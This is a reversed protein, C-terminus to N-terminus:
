SKIYPQYKSAYVGEKKKEKLSHYQMFGPLVPKVNLKIKKSEFISASEIM